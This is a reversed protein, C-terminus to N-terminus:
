APANDAQISIGAEDYYRRAGPHLPIPTQAMKEPELPYTVPSREPPIHHYKQELAGRTECLCWTLLHAVDEAMDDRVVLLFDSFDLTPLPEDLGRFYGAPLEKRGWGYKTEMTKIVAEEIPIFALDKENALTQWWSNMVAEHIIANARGNMMDLICGNAREATVYGGGWSELTARDIGAASMVQGAAYGILNEGDDPSTTITLAPKQARIDDFSHVGLKADVALVLHDWQPVQGLARIHPFAEGAYIGGGDLAMRASVAPTTLALDVEGRGVARVADAGGRGNWIGFRSHKGTRDVMMMSLWGCIGHLNAMGWDGYFRLTVSRELRPGEMEWWKPYSFMNIQPKKDKLSM